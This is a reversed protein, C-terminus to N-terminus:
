SLSSCGLFSGCYRRECPNWYLKSPHHFKPFIEWIEALLHAAIPHLQKGADQYSCNPTHHMPGNAPIEIFRFERVTFNIMKQLNVKVLFM